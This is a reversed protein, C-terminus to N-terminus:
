EADRGGGEIVILGCVLRTVTKDLLQLSDCLSAIRHSTRTDYADNYADDWVWNADKSLNLFEIPLKLRVWDNGAIESTPMPVIIFPPMDRNIM